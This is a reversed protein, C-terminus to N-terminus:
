ATRQHCSLKWFITAVAMELGLVGLNSEKPNDSALQANLDDEFEKFNLVFCQLQWRSYKGLFKLSLLAFCPSM